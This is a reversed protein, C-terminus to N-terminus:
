RVAWENLNNCRQDKKIRTGNSRSKSRRIRRRMRKQQRETVVCYGLVNKIQGSCNRAADDLVSLSYVFGQTSSMM